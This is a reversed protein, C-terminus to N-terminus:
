DKNEKDEMKAKKGASGPASATGDGDRSKEPTNTKSSASPTTTEKEKKRKASEEKKKQQGTKWSDLASELPKVFKDFEMDEIAQIVDSGQLTKRSSM